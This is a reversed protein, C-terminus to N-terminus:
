AITSVSPLGEYLGASGIEIDLSIDFPKIPPRLCEPILLRIKSMYFVLSGGNM